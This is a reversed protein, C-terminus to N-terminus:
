KLSQRNSQLSVTGTHIRPVNPATGLCNSQNLSKTKALVHIEKANKPDNLVANSRINIVKNPQNGERLGLRSTNCHLLKAYQEM